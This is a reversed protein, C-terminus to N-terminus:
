ELGLAASGLVGECGSKNSRRGSCVGTPPMVGAVDGDYEHIYYSPHPTAFHHANM